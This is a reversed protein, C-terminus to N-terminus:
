KTQLSNVYRAISGVVGRAATENSTVGAQAEKITEWVKTHLNGPRADAILALWDAAPFKGGHRVVYSRLDVPQKTTSSMATGPAGGAGHCPTCYKDYWVKGAGSLAEDIDDAALARDGIAMALPVLLLAFGRSQEV